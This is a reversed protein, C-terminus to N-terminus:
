IFSFGGLPKKGGLVHMHIHYVEQLGIKGCNIITRFGNPSGNRKALKPALLVMSGLLNEHVPQADSLTSIHLKPIILFHLEAKPNIDNFALFDDSEFLIKSPIKKEVIKCFICNNSM